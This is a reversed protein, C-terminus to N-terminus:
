GLKALLVFGSTEVKLLPLAKSLFSQIVRQQELIDRSRSLSEEIANIETKVAM